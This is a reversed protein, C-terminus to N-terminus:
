DGDDYASLIEILEQQLESYQEDDASHASIDSILGNDAIQEAVDPSYSCIALLAKLIKCSAISSQLNDVLDDPTFENEIMDDIMSPHHQLIVSLALVAANKIPFSM